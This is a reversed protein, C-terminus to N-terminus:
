KLLLMKRSITRHPTKLYYIYTGSALYGGDFKYRYRGPPYTGLALLGVQRGRTDYVGLEVHTRKDLDFEITTIPNFPNPYNQRLRFANPTIRPLREMGVTVYGTTDGDIVAGNLQYTLWQHGDNYRWFFGFGAAIKDTFLFTGLLTTDGLPQGYYDIEMVRTIRGLVNADYTDRVYAKDQAGGRTTDVDVIWTDGSDADLKYLRNVLWSVDAFPDLTVYLSTDILYTPRNQNTAYHGKMFIYRGEAALSDRIIERRELSGEETIYEWVDGVHAPFFDEPKYDQALAVSTWIM